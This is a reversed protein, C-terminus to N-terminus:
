NVWLLRRLFRMGAGGNNEAAQAYKTIFAFLGSAPHAADITRCYRQPDPRNFFELPYQPPHQFFAQLSIGKGAPCLSGLSGLMGGQGAAPTLLTKGQFLPLLHGM